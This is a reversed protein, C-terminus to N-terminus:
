PESVDPSSSSPLAAFAVQLAGFHDLLLDWRRFQQVSPHWLLNMSLNQHSCGDARFVYVPKKMGLATGMEGQIATYGLGTSENMIVLFVDCAKINSVRNAAIQRLVNTSVPPQINCTERDVWTYVVEYGKSELDSVYPSKLEGERFHVGSVFVKPKHAVSM